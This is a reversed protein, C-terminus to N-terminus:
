FIPERIIACCGNINKIFGKHEKCIIEDGDNGKRENMTQFYDAIRGFHNQLFYGHFHNTELKWIYGEKNRQLTESVNDSKRTELSKSM